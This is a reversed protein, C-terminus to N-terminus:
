FKEYSKNSKKYYSYSKHGARVVNSLLKIVFSYRRIYINYLILTDGVFGVQSKRCFLFNFCFIDLISNNKKVDIEPWQGNYMSHNTDFSVMFCSYAYKITTCICHLVYYYIFSRGACVYLLYTNYISTCHM